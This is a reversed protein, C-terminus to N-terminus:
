EVGAKRRMQHLAEEAEAESGFVMEGWYERLNGVDDYYTPRHSVIKIKGDYELANVVREVVVGNTLLSGFTTRTSLFYAKDGVKLPFAVVGCSELYEAIGEITNRHGLIIAQDLLEKLTNKMKENM